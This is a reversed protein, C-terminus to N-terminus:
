AEQSPMDLARGGEQSPTRLCREGLGDGFTADTFCEGDLLSGDAWPAEEM